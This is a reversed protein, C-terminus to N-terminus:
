ARSGNYSHSRIRVRTGPRSASVSAREPAMGLGERLDVRGAAGFVPIPQGTKKDLAYLWNRYTVFVRDKHVTVGRHRVAADREYAFRPNM